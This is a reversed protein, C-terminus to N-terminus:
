PLVISTCVRAWTVAAAPWMSMWAWALGAARCRLVWTPSPLRMRMPSCAVTLVAPRICIGTSMALLKTSASSRMLSSRSEWRCAFVQSYPRFTMTSRRLDPAKLPSIAPTSHTVSSDPLASLPTQTPVGSASTVPQTPLPRTPRDSSAARPPSMVMWDLPETIVRGPEM